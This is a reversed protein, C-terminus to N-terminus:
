GDSPSSIKPLEFFLSDSNKPLIFHLSARSCNLVFVFESRFGSESWLCIRVSNQVEGWIIESILM